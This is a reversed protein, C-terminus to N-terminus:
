AKLFSLARHHAEVYSCMLADVDEGTNCEYLERILEESFGDQHRILYEAQKQHIESVGFIRTFQERQAPSPRRVLDWRDFRVKMGKKTNAGRMVTSFKRFYSRDWECRTEMYGVPQIYREVIASVIPCGPAKYAISMCKAALLPEYNQVNHALQSNSFPFNCITKLPNYLLEYNRNWWMSCYGADGLNEIPILEAAVGLKAMANLITDPEVRDKWSTLSDDGEFVGRYEVNILKSVADMLIKNRITNSLSTTYRGSYQVAPTKIVVGNKNIIKGGAEIWDFLFHYHPDVLPRLVRHEGLQMMQKNPVCEWSTYDAVYKSLGQSLRREIVRPRFEEPIEKTCYPSSFMAHMIPWFAMTMLLKEGEQPFCILRPAKKPDPYGEQKIFITTNTHKVTKIEQITQWDMEKAIKLLKMIKRKPQTKRLHDIVYLAGEYTPPISVVGKLQMRELLYASLEDASQMLARQADPNNAIGNLPNKIQTLQQTDVGVRHRAGAVMNDPSHTDWRTYHICTNIM